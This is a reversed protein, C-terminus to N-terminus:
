RRLNQRWSSDELESKAMSKFISDPMTDVIQQYIRAASERENVAVLSKALNFM